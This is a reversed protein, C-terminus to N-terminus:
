GAVPDGVAALAGAALAQAAGRDVDSGNGETIAVIPAPCRHMIQRITEVGEGRAGLCLAIVDPKIHAATRLADAEGIAWGAVRLSPDAEVLSILLAHRAVSQDVVLVRIPQGASAPLLSGGLLDSM